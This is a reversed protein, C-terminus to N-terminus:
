VEKADSQEWQVGTQEAYSLTLVDSKEWRVGTQEDNKLTLHALSFLM